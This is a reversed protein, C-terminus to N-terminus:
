TGTEGSEPPAPFPQWDTVRSVKFRSIPYVWASGTWCAPEQCRFQEEHFAYWRSIIYVGPDPLREEVSIWDSM